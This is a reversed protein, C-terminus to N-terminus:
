PVPAAGSPQSFRALLDVITDVDIRFPDAPLGLLPKDTLDLWNGPLMRLVAEARQRQRRTLMGMAQRLAFPDHHEAAALDYLDRPEALGAGCLRHLLKAALIDASSWTEISTGPLRARTREDVPPEVPLLTVETNEVVAYAGLADVFTHEPDDSIARLSEEMEAGNVRFSALYVSPACFFDLDTSVRHKWRAQLVTEGGLRLAGRALFRGVAAETRRAVRLFAEGLGSEQAPQTPAIM